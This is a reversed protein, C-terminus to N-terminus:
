RKADPTLQLERELTDILALYKERGTAEREIRAFLASLDAQRDDDLVNRAMMFLINDEKMIHQRMLAAYDRANRIVADAASADGAIFQEAAARLGASFRRGEDHEALMVGVPGGHRPFGAAEMAPFLGEEEKRHHCGDAFNRIFDAAEMFLTARVPAGAQLRAAAADLTNLMREIVRHDQSLGNTPEM